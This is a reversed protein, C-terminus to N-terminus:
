TDKHKSSKAISRDDVLLAVHMVVIQYESQIFPSFPHCADQSSLPVIKIKAWISKKEFKRCLGSAIKISKRSMHISANLAVEMSKNGRAQEIEDWHWTRIVLSRPIDPQMVLDWGSVDSSANVNISSLRNSNLLEQIFLCELRAPKNDFPQLHSKITSICLVTPNKFNNIYPTRM